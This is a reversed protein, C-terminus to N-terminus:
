FSTMLPPPFGVHCADEYSPFDPCLFLTLPFLVHLSLPFPRGGVLWFSLGPVSGEKGPRLFFWGQQGRSELSWGSFQLIILLCIEVWAVQEQYKTLLLRVLITRFAPLPLFFACLQDCLRAFSILGIQKCRPIYSSLLSVLCFSGRNGGLLWFCVNCSVTLLPVIQKNAM